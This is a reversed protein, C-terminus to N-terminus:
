PAAKVSDRSSRVTHLDLLALALDPGGTITEYQPCTSSARPLPGDDWFIRVAQAGLEQARRLYRADGSERYAFLMLSIIHAPVSPWLDAATATMDGNLYADASKLVLDRYRPNHTQRYREMCLIAGDATTPNGYAAQWTPSYMTQTQPRNPPVRPAWPQGTKANVRLVFGKASQVAKKKPREAPFHPFNLFTEDERAAFARLRGALPEPVQSAAEACSIALSLSSLVSSFEFDPRSGVAAGGPVVGTKPNRKREYRSLMVDIPKLLREDKTFAYLAAWIRIYFGAHRQYDQGGDTKHRAYGAHRSFDGTQQNGIQHEWLGLGFRLCNQPALRYSQDMLLWAEYMEHTGTNKNTGGYWTNAAINWCLHEGWAYLGTTTSQAHTLFWQLSRDAAAEYRKEGTTRTLAYMLRYLDQDHQPNSGSLADRDQQRIGLPPSSTETPFYLTKRDLRSAFLPAKMEGYKGNAQAIMADAYGRVVALFDPQNGSTIPSRRAGDEAGPLTPLLLISLLMISIAALSRLLGQRPRTATPKNM